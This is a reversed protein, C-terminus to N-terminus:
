VATVLSANSVHLFSNAVTGRFFLPSESIFLFDGVTWFILSNYGKYNVAKGTILLRSVRTETSWFTGLFVAALSFPLQTM